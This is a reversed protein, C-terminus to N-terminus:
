APFVYPPVLQGMVSPKSPIPLQIAYTPSFGSANSSAYQSTLQNLTYWATPVGLLTSLEVEVLKLETTGAIEVTDPTLEDSASKPIPLGVLSIDVAGDVSTIGVELTADVALSDSALLM